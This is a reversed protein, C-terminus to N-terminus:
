DIHKMWDEEYKNMVLWEKVVNIASSREMTSTYLLRGKGAGFPAALLLFGFNDPLKSAVVQAAERMYGKDRPDKALEEEIKKELAAQISLNIVGLMQRVTASAGRLEAQKVFNEKNEALTMQADYDDEMDEMVAALGKLVVITPHELIFSM